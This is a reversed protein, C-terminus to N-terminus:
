LKGKWFDVMDEISRELSYAPIFGMAKLKAGDGIIVPNDIPRILSPDIRIKSPIKVLRCILELVERLSVGKSSCVNYIDGATGKELIVGYARIVDRVDIFDRVIGLEGCIIEPLEGKSVLVAQRVFSSMVFRETQGPGLHNFSRTCVIDLGYGKSYVKSLHEQAVRAVAYPNMPNSPRDERLPVDRPAVPGYEESSGVSLIRCKLNNQRVAEVLNLFINTNNVFCDVPQQWSLGVSSASALHIIREPKADAILEKLGAADMLSLQHFRLGTMDAPAMADVGVIAHGEALLARRLHAGVFGSVGTVLYKM